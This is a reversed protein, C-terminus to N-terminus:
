SLSASQIIIKRKSNLLNGLEKWMEKMSHIKSNFSERYYEAEAKRIMSRLKNKYLKYITKNEETQHFIYKQYLIHKQKISQKLGSTIWPKDKARKRSLRKFPFSKNYASHLKQNFILAENTIKDILEKEWKIEGLLRKFNNKNKNSFIRVKPRDALKSKTSSHLILFNAFHDSMDTMLNDSSVQIRSNRSLYFIHDVLTCTHSTVRTPLLITPIFGNKIM